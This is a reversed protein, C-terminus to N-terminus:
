RLCREAASRVWRLDEDLTRGCPRASPSHGARHALFAVACAANYLLARERRLALGSSREYSACAADFLDDRATDFLLYRLDHHRDAWAAGAYDFIGRLSLTQPDLALNHLGIDTHVLARDADDIAVSEYRELVEGIRDLLRPERVVERLRPWMVETPEPWSPREPLSAAIDQRRVLTHQVALREGIEAGLARALGPDSRLARYVGWPDVLGPVIERVDVGWAAWLVVPVRLHARLAALVSRERELLELGEKTAAFWAMRDGPLWVAWRAERAEIRLPGSPLDLGSRALAESVAAEDLTPYLM